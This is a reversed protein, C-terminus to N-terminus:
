PSRYYIFLIALENIKIRKKNVAHPGAVGVAVGVRSIVAVIVLLGVGKGGVRV